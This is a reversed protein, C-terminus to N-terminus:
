TPAPYICASGPLSYDREPPKWRAEFAQYTMFLARAYASIGELRTSATCIDEVWVIMAGQTLRPM